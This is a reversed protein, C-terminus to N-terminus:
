YQNEIAPIRENESESSFGNENTTTISSLQLDKWDSWLEWTQAALELNRLTGSELGNSHAKQLLIKSRFLERLSLNQTYTLISQPSLKEYPIFATLPRSLIFFFLETKKESTLWRKIKEQCYMVDLGYPDESEDFYWIAALDYHYQPYFNNKRREDLMDVIFRIESRLKIHSIGENDTYGRILEIAENITADTCKYEDHRRLVESMQVFREQYMPVGDRGFQYYKIGGDEFALVKSPCSVFNHHTPRLAM